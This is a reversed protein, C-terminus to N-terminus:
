RRILRTKVFNGFAIGLTAFASLRNRLKGHKTLKAQRAMEIGCVFLEVDDERRAYDEMRKVFM